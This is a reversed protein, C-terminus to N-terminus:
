RSDSYSIAGKGRCLSCKTVYLVPRVLGDERVYHVKRLQGQGHCDPCVNASKKIWEITRIEGFTEELEEKAGELKQKVEKEVLYRSLRFFTPKIQTTLEAGRIIEDLQSESEVKKVRAHLGELYTIYTKLGEIRRYLEERREGLRQLEQKLQKRIERIRDAPKSM